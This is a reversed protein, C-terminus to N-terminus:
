NRVVEIEVDTYPQNVEAMGRSIATYAFCNDRDWLDSLAGRATVIVRAKGAAMRAVLPAAPDTATMHIVDFEMRDLRRALQSIPGLTARGTSMFEPLRNSPRCFWYECHVGRRDLQRGLLQMSTSIGGTDCLLRFLLVRM